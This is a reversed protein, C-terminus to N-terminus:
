PGYCIGSPSTCYGSAPSGIQPTPQTITTTTTTSAVSSPVTQVPATAAAAAATSGTSVSTGATAPAPTTVGSAPSSGVVVRRPHAPSRPSSGAVALAVFAAAVVVGVLASAIIRV